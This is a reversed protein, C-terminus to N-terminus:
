ESQCSPESPSWKGSAGCTRSSSNSLAYGTDCTYTAISGFTTGSKTQVQGNAPLSPSGCDVVAPLHQTLLTIHGQLPFKVAFNVMVLHNLPHGTEMLEVLVHSHVLCHTVLTVPTSLQVEFPPEMPYTLMDTILILLCVM